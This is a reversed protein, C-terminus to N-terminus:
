RREGPKRETTSRACRKVHVYKYEWLLAADTRGRTWRGRGRRKAAVLSFSLFFFGRRQRSQNLLLDSGSRECEMSLVCVLSFCQRSPIRRDISLATRVLCAAREHGDWGPAAAKVGVNNEHALEDQVCPCVQSCELSMEIAAVNSRGM